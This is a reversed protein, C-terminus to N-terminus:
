EAVNTFLKLQAIWKNDLYFLTKVSCRTSLDTMKFQFRKKEDQLCFKSDINLAM